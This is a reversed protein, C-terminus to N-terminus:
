SVIYLTSFCPSLTLAFLRTSHRKEEDSSMLLLLPSPSHQGFSKASVPSYIILLNSIYDRGWSLIFLLFLKFQLSVLLFWPVCSLPPPPSFSLSKKIVIFTILYSFTSLSSCLEIRGLWFLFLFFAFYTQSVFPFFLYFSSLSHMLLNFSKVLGIGFVNQCPFFLNNPYFHLHM